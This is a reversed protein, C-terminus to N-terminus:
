YIVPVIDPVLRGYIKCKECDDTSEIALTLTEHFQLTEQVEFKSM